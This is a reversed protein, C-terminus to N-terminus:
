IVAINVEFSGGPMTLSNYPEDSSTIQELLGYLVDSIPWFYSNIRSLWRKAKPRFIFLPIKDTIVRFYLIKLSHNLAGVLIFVM